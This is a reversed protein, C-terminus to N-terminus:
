VKRYLKFAGYPQESHIMLTCAHELERQAAQTSNWNADDFWIYGGEKVRPLYLQVDRCSSAESHNGDIHLIDIPLDDFTGVVRHAPASLLRIHQWLNNKGIRDCMIAYIDKLALDGWWNRNILNERPYKIRAKEVIERFRTLKEIQHSRGEQEAIAQSVEEWWQLDDTYNEVCAVNTWPDIGYIIGKRNHRLTLAQPVLSKGGYVGIEVVVEPQERLILGCMMRAKDLECWGPLDTQMEIQSRLPEPHLKWYDHGSLTTPMLGIASWQTARSEKVCYWDLHRDRLCNEYLQSDAPSRLEKMRALLVELGSRRVYYAHTGWIIDKMECINPAVERKVKEQIRDGHALHGIYLFNANSPLNAIDEAVKAQFNECLYADDELIIADQYGCQYLHQWLMYHGLILGAQGANIPFEGRTYVKSSLLGWTKGHVSRWWGPVIGRDHLHEALKAKRDPIEDCYLAFVPPQHLKPTELKKEVSAADYTVIEVGRDHVGQSVTWRGQEHIAGCVFVVAATAGVRSGPDAWQLPERTMSKIAFTPRADFAYLGTNYITGTGAGVRGHFWHYYSDGVRVPAAGGRLHGGNWPQPTETQYIHVIRDEEIEFVTHPKISYVCYLREDHSFFAWNKEWVSRERYVPYWVGQVKYDDSLRCYMVNARIGYPHEKFPDVGVFMMHLTGRHIFLRPDEQGISCRPHDIQLRTVRIPKYSEDLEAIFLRSKHQAERYALLLKGNYRIISANFAHPHHLRLRKVSLPTVGETPYRTDPEYGPCSPGCGICPSVNEGIPKDPHKCALWRERHQLHNDISNWNLDSGEHLCPLTTRM